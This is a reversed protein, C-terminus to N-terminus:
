QKCSFHREPIAFMDIRVQVDTICETIYDALNFTAILKTCIKAVESTRITRDCYARTSALTKGSPTPWKPVVLSLPAPDYVYSFLDEDDDPLVIKDSTSRRKRRGCHKANPFTLDRWWKRGTRYKPRKQYGTFDCKIKRKGCCTEECTCYHKM